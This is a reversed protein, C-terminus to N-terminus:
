GQSQILISDQQQLFRIGEKGGIMNLVKILQYLSINKNVHITYNGAQPDVQNLVTIGYQTEIWQKLESINVNQLFVDGRTWGDAENRLVSDVRVKKEKANYRLRESPHLIGLTDSGNSVAVRGTVVSVKVDELSDILKVSFSTGKVTTTLQGSVITFPHNPDKRVEFFVEGRKLVIHRNGVFNKAFSISSSDNLWIDSSDPLRYKLVQGVKSSITITGIERQSVFIMLGIALGIVSAAVAFSIKKGIRNKNKLEPGLNTQQYINERIRAKTEDRELISDFHFVEGVDVLNDLYKNLAELEPGSINGEKWKKLLDLFLEKDLM